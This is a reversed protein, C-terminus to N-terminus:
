FFIIYLAWVSLVLWIIFNIWVSAPLGKKLMKEGMKIFENGYAAFAMGMLLATFLSAALINIISMTKLLYYLVILALIGFLWTITNNTYIKKAFNMWAQKNFLFFLFKIIILVSIITAFLQITTLGM